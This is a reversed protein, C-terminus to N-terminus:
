TKSNLVLKRNELKELKVYFEHFVNYSENTYEGKYIIVKRKLKIIGENVEVLSEYKGFKTEISVPEPKSYIWFTNPMNILIEDELTFGRKISYYKMMEDKDIHKELPNPFMASLVMRDGVKKLHGNVKLHFTSNFIAKKPDPQNIKFDSITFDGFAFKKLNYDRVYDSSALKYIMINDFFIGKHETETVIDADGIENITIAGKTTEVNQFHPYLRSRIIKSERPKIWLVNRDDTFTGTFNAPTIQSTCELYVTDSPLPIGLYVHNFQNSPFDALVDPTNKGAKVLVYYAPIGAITLMNRMYTSLAKCDGYGHEEVDETPLSKFGGIGLQISVYRTNNQMYEYLREIIEITSKGKLSDILTQTKPKLKFSDSNLALFWEGFDVWSLNSGTSKDLVFKEPSVYVKPQQKYFDEYRMKKNISPLNKVTVSYVNKENSITTSGKVFEEKIKLRYRDPYSVILEAQQVGLNFFMRPTWTPFSTFGSLKIKSHVEITYPYSKYKPDIYFFKSDSIEYSPNFGVENGDGRNLKKIKKGSADYVILNVEAIKRVKDTYDQFLGYMDGKESLIKITYFEELEASEESHITYFTKQNILTAHEQCLGMQFFALLSIVFIIHKINM